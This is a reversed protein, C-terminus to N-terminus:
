RALALSSSSGLVHVRPEICRPGRIGFTETGAGLGCSVVWRQSREKRELHFRPTNQERGQHVM